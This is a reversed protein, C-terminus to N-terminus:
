KRPHAHRQLLKKHVGLFLRELSDDLYRISLLFHVTEHSGGEPHDRNQTHCAQVNRVLSDLESADDRRIDNEVGAYSNNGIASENGHDVINLIGSKNGNLSNVNEASNGSASPKETEASSEIESPTESVIVLDANNAIGICGIANGNEHGDVIESASEIEREDTASAIRNGGSSWGSGFGSCDVFQCLSLRLSPSRGPSCSRFHSM